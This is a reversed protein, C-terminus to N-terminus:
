QAVVRVVDLLKGAAAHWCTVIDLKVEQFDLSTRMSMFMWLISKQWNQEGGNGRGEDAFILKKHSIIELKWLGVLHISPLLLSM